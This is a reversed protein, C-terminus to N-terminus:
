QRNTQDPIPIHVTPGHTLYSRESRRQARFRGTIERVEAHSTPLNRQAREAAIRQTEVEADYLTPCQFSACAHKTAIVRVWFDGVLDENRIV